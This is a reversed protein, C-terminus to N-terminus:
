EAGTVYRQILVEAATLMRQTVGAAGITQDAVLPIRHEPLGELAVVLTALQQGEAVPAELPGDYLVKGSVTERQVAPILIRVDEAPVLGVNPADGLWVPASAVVEGKKAVTKQVFQQFAWNAIGRAEDTRAQQTDHGAIVFVIRREGQVASGVLCYGAESTHGTKLGDAGIGMTLLPNRNFRNDPARDGWRFEEHAFYGYYQPFEDIIYAALRGLDHVSMEHGPAPLGSANVFHSNTLGIARARQNMFEAFDSETGALKEAVVVAADNGSLVVIGQILDEITPTDTPAPKAAM